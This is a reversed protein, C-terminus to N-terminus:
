YSCRPRALLHWWGLIRFSSRQRVETVLPILACNPLGRQPVVAFQAALRQAPFLFIMALQASCPQGFMRWFMALKFHFPFTAYKSDLTLSFDLSRQLSSLAQVM